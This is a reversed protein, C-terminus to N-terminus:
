RDCSGDLGSEVGRCVVRVPWAAWPTYRPSTWHARDERVSQLLDDTRM